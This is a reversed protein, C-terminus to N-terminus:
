RAKKAVAIRIRKKPAEVVAESVTEEAVAIEKEAEELKFSNYVEEPVEVDLGEAHKMKVYAHACPYRVSKDCFDCFPAYEGCLDRKLRQSNLMKDVDIVAQLNQVNEGTLHTPMTLLLKLPEQSNWM